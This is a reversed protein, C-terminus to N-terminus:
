RSYRSNERDSYRFIKRTVFNYAPKFYAKWLKGLGSRKQLLNNEEEKLPVSCFRKKQKLVHRVDEHALMNFLWKMWPKMALQFDIICPEHQNIVVWNEPKELDNHVIGCAHMQKVLALASSYFQENTVNRKNLPEGKIYTRILEGKEMALLRPVSGEPLKELQRIINAERKALLFSVPRVIWSASKYRRCIAQTNDVLEVLLVSGMIDDKLIELERYTKM